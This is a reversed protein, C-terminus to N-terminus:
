TLLVDRSLEKGEGGRESVAKSTEGSFEGEVSCKYLLGTEAERELSGPKLCCLCSGLHSWSSSCGKGDSALPARLSHVLFCSLASPMQGALM